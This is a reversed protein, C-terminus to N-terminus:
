NSYGNDSNTFLKTKRDKRLPKSKLKVIDSDSECKATVVSAIPVPPKRAYESDHFSLTFAPAFGAFHVDALRHVYA